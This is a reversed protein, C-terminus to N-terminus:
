EKSTQADDCRQHIVRNETTRECDIYRSGTQNMPPQHDLIWRGLSEDADGGCIKCKGGQSSLLWERYRKQKPRLIAGGPGFYTRTLYFPLRIEFHADDKTRMEHKPIQLVWEDTSSGFVPKYKRRIPNTIPM